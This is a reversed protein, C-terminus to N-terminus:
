PKKILRIVRHKSIMREKRCGSMCVTTMISQVSEIEVARKLLTNSPTPATSKETFSHLLDMCVASCDVQCTKKVVNWFQEPQKAKYVPRYVPPPFHFEKLQCCGSLRVQIILVLMETTSWPLEMLCDAYFSKWFHCRDRATTHMWWDAMLRRPHPRSSATSQNLRHLTIPHVPNLM